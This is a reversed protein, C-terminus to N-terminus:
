IWGTIGDLRATLSAMVFRAKKAESVPCRFFFISSGTLGERNNSCTIVDPSALRSSSCSFTCPMSLCWTIPDLALLLFCCCLSASSARSCISESSSVLSHFITLTYPSPPSFTVLSYVSDKYKKRVGPSGQSNLPPPFYCIFLIAPNVSHSFPLLFWRPDKPALFFNLSECSRSELPVTM